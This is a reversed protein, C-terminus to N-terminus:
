NLLQAEANILRLLKLDEFTIDDKNRISNYANYVKDIEKKGIKGFSVQGNEFEKYIATIEKKNTKLPPKALYDILEIQEQDFICYKLLDIEQMGKIYNFVELYYHIKNEAKQLLEFINIFVNKLNM